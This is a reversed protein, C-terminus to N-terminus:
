KDQSLVQEALVPQHQIMFKFTQEKYSQSTFRSMELMAQLAPRIAMELAPNSSTIIHDYLPLYRSLYSNNFMFPGDEESLCKGVHKTAWALMWIWSAFASPAITMMQDKKERFSNEVGMVMNLMVRRGQPLKLVMMVTKECDIRLMSQINRAVMVSLSSRNNRDMAKCIDALNHSQFHPIMQQLVNAHTEGIEEYVFDMHGIFFRKMTETHDTNPHDVMSMAVVRAVQRLCTECHSVCVSCIAVVTSACQLSLRNCLIEQCLFTVVSQLSGESLSKSNVLFASAILDPDDFRNLNEIVVNVCTQRQDTPVGSVILKLTQESLASLSFDHDNSILESLRDWTISPSPNRYNNLVFDKLDIDSGFM